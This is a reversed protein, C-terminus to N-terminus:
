VCACCLSEEYLSLFVSVLDVLDHKNFKLSRIIVHILQFLESRESELMTPYSDFMVHALVFCAQDDSLSM